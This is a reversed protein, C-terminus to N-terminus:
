FDVENVEKITARVKNAYGETIIKFRVHVVCAQSRLIICEIFQNGQEVEKEVEMEYYKWIENDIYNRGNEKM